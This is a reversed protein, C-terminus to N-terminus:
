LGPFMADVGIRVDLEAGCTHKVVVENYRPGPQRKDIEDLVRKRDVVGLGERVMSPRGATGAQGEYEDPVSLVVRTLIVSNREAITADGELYAEQDSGVPLRVDVFGGKKLNVQFQLDSKKLPKVPIDHVSVKADFEEDCKPCVATGLEIEHGYTAERVAMLLYERDGVLLRNLLEENAPVGGITEVGCELITQIFRYPDTSLAFKSIREEDFGNLEKVVFDNRTDGNIDAGGPLHDLSAPRPPQIAPLDPVPDAIAAATIAAARAPDKKPDIVEIGSDESM